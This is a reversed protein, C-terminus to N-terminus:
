GTFPDDPIRDGPSGVIPDWETPDHPMTISGRGVENGVACGAEQGISDAATMAEVLFGSILQKNFQPARSGM